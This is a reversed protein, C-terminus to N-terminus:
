TGQNGTPNRRARATARRQEYVEECEPRRLYDPLIEQGTRYRGAAAEALALTLLAEAQPGWTSVPLLAAGSEVLESAHRELGEGLVADGPILRSRWDAWPLLAPPETATLMGEASATYCAAFVLGQRADLLVRLPTGPRTHPLANQAIVALTSVAVVRCGTALRWLRAVTAGIRLGTFSGPGASYCLLEIDVPRAGVDRLLTAIAPFLEAAHRQVPSLARTLVAGRGTRLAVGGARTSTEIALICPSVSM